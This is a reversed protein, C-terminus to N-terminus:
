FFIIFMLLVTLKELQAEAKLAINDSVNRQMESTASILMRGVWSKVESVEDLESYMFPYVHKNTFIDDCSSSCIFGRAKKTICYLNRKM